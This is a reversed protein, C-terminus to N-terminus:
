YTGETHDTVGPTWGYTDRLTRSLASLEFALADIDAVDSTFMTLTELGSRIQVSATTNNVVMHSDVKIGDGAKAHFNVTISM